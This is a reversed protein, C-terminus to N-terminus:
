GSATAPVSTSIPATDIPLGCATNVTADTCLAGTSRRPGAMSFCGRNGFRTLTPKMSITSRACMRNRTKSRPTPSVSAQPVPAQAATATPRRWPRRSEVTSTSNGPPFSSSEQAPGPSCMQIFPGVATDKVPRTSIWPAWFYHACLGCTAHGCTLGIFLADLAIERQVRVEELPVLRQQRAHAQRVHAGAGRHRQHFALHFHQAVLLRVCVPPEGFEDGHGAGVVLQGLADM